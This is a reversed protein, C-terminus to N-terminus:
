FVYDMKILFPHDVTQLIESELKLNELSKYEIVVDKRICKMASLKGDM